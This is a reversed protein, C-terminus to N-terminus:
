HNLKKCIGRKRSCDRTCLGRCNCRSAVCHKNHSICTYGEKCERNDNCTNYYWDLCMDEVKCKCINCGKKNSEFGTKCYMDCMVDPCKTEHCETIWPRICSQTHECWEYGASKICNHSDRVNGVITPEESAVSSSLLFLFGTILKFLM